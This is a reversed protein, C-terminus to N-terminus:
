HAIDSMKQASVNSLTRQIIDFQRQAGFFVETPQPLQMLLM